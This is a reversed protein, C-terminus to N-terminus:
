SVNAGAVFANRVPKSALLSPIHLADGDFARVLQVILQLFQDLGTPHLVSLFSQDFGQSPKEIGM